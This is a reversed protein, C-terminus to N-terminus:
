RPKGDGCHVSLCDPATDNWYSSATGAAITSDLLLFKTAGIAKHYIAWSYVDDRNKVLMMEPAVGLNHAVTRAVGTGEFTVVDIGYDAGEKMCWALYTKLSSNLRAWQAEVGDGVTFGDTLFATLSKELTGEADSTSAELYQGVGMINKEFITHDYATDLCKTWIIDPAFELGTIDRELTADGTWELVDFAENGELVEPNPISACDLAKAEGYSSFYDMEDENFRVECGVNLTYSYLGFVWDLSADFDTYNNGGGDTGNKYWRITGSDCDIVTGIVDNTGFAGPSNAGGTANDKYMVGTAGYYLYSRDSSTPWASLDANPDFVGPTATTDGAKIEFCWKGTKPLLITGMGGVWDNATPKWERNGNVARGDCLPHYPNMTQQNNTPTDTVQEITYETGDHDNGSQDELLASANSCDYYHGSNGYTGSYAKPVWVGNQTQGFDDADLAQGDIFYVEAMYAQCPYINSNNAGFYWNYSASGFASLTNQPIASAFNFDTELVGNVWLKLRDGEAAQTSDYAIVIHYWAAPDRFLRNTRWGYSANLYMDLAGTNVFRIYGAASSNFIHHYDAFDGTRKMWFSLTQKKLDTPTPNNRWGVYGGSNDPAPWLMGYPVETPYSFGGAGGGSPSRLLPILNSM